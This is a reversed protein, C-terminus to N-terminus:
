QEEIGEPVLGGVVTYIPGLDTARESARGPLAHRVHGCDLGLM